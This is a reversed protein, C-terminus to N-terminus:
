NKKPVELDEEMKKIEDTDIYVKESNINFAKESSSDKNLINLKVTNNIVDKAKELINKSLTSDNRLLLYFSGIIGLFALIKFFFNFISFREKEKKKSYRTYNTSRRLKENKRNQLERENRAFIENYFERKDREM